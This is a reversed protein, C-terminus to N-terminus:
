SREIRVIIENGINEQLKLIIPKTNSIDELRWVEVNNKLQLNIVRKLYDCEESLNEVREKLMKYDQREKIISSVSESVKTKLNAIQSQLEENKDEAVRLDEYAVEAKKQFEAGAKEMAKILDNQTSIYEELAFIYDETQSFAARDFTKM